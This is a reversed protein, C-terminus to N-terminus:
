KRLVSLQGQATNSGSPYLETEKDVRVCLNRVGEVVDTVGDADSHM